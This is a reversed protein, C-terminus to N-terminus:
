PSFNRFLGLELVGCACGALTMYCVLFSLCRLRRQLRSSGSGRGFGHARRQRRSGRVGDKRPPAAGDGTSGHGEGSWCGPRACAEQADDVRGHFTASPNMADLVARLRTAYTIMGGKSGAPANEAEEKARRKAEKRERKERKKREKETEGAPPEGAPEFPPMIM